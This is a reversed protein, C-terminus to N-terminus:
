RKAALMRNVDVYSIADETFTSYTGQESLEKAVRRALGLAARAAGSGITVRAVGLKQLEAIPPTGKVAIINIPGRVAKALKGITEADSVGPIFLSDAGADRYANLREVARDFRTAPDGVGMLFVDTRANIVLNTKARISRVIAVQQALDALVRPDDNPTDELNMGVAGAQMVALATAAPDEYGAEVDATVPISVANAIRRVMDLMLEGPIQQRDPYGFVAAVGASTTAIAPFGADEFVRASGVDWANPLVLIRDRHHLERFLGAKQAQTMNISRSFHFSIRSRSRHGRPFARRKSRVRHRFHTPMNFCDGPAVLVGRQALARSFERANAGSALWPFATMGGRPRVWRVTDSHEAFARDVLKLNETAIRRARGYIEERHQLAIVALRESLATNSATFYSRANTYRERRKADREIAWGVRLGSLCLAKSFDGLVTAHPLRAASRTQPGHYIPHYVEDSIFQVGREACFDHLHEMERDSLVGGTPNHPSNVMVFRTNRDVLARIEDLDVRFENEPRLTYSRVEIGFSEALATNTPFGPASLVVNAGPEAALFFLILLAEAAGTLVQVHDPDVNEMAAIAERLERSGNGSTYSIATDLLREDFGSQGALALLERLTWVPGTSAALDYEIPSNPSHKQELWLDLLFPSLKM